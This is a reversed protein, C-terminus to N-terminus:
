VIGIYSNLVYRGFLVLKTGALVSKPTLSNIDLNSSAWLGKIPKSGQFFATGTQLGIHKLIVKSLNLGERDSLTKGLTGNYVHKNHDMFLVIREGTAKWKWIATTLHQRFLTLPCTLHNKKMIFYRHQQQYSTGSNVNKNKCPNYATILCTNHGDSGGLLIWCWHILEEEYKGVKKICGTTDGFCM